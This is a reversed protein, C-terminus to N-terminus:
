SRKLVHNRSDSFASSGGNLAAASFPSEEERLRDNDAGAYSVKMPYKEAIDSANEMSPNAQEKRITM